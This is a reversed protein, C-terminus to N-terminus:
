SREKRREARVEEWASRADFPPIKRLVEMFDVPDNAKKKTKRM